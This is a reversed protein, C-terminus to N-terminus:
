CKENAFDGATVSEFSMYTYVRSITRSMHVKYIDSLYEVNVPDGTRFPKDELKGNVFEVRPLCLVCM